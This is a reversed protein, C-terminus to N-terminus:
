QEIQYPLDSAKWQAKTAAMRSKANYEAIMGSLVMRIGREEETGKAIEAKRRTAEIQEKMDYFWEYSSIRVNADQVLYPQKIDNVRKANWRHFAPFSVILAIIAIIVICGFAGWISFKEEREM